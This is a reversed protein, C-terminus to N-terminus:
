AQDGEITADSDSDDMMEPDLAENLAMMGSDQSGDESSEEQREIDEKYTDMLFGISSDTSEVQATDQSLCFQCCPTIAPFFYAPHPPALLPNQVPSPSGHFSFISLLPSPVKQRLPCLLQACM